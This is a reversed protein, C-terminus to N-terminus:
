PNYFTNVYNKSTMLQSTGAHSLGMNSLRGNKPIFKSMDFSSGGLAVDSLDSPLSLETLFFTADGPGLLVGREDLEARRAAVSSASAISGLRRLSRLRSQDAACRGLDPVEYTGGTTLLAMSVVRVRFGLTSRLSVCAAVTDSSTAHTARLFTAAFEFPPGGAASAADDHRWVVRRAPAGAGPAAPGDERWAGAQARALEDPSLLACSEPRLLLEVCADRAEALNPLPSPGDRVRPAACREECAFFARQITLNMSPWSKTHLAAIKLHVMAGSPDDMSMLLRAALYHLRSSSPNSRQVYNEGVAPDAAGGGSDCLSANEELLDLAHLVCDLAM